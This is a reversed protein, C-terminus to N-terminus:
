NTGTSGFSGEGRDTKSLESVEMLEINPYPLIILQGIRENIKYNKVPRTGPTFVLKIEGRFSSDIVGVSNSLSLSTKMISSRPFILGVYGEPIELALGTGFILKKNVKDFTKSVAYLDLAADGSKAYHPMVAQPNLKKFKINLQNKRKIKCMLSNITFIIIAIGIFYCLDNM